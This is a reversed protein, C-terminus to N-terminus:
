MVAREASALREVDEALEPRPLTRLACDSAEYLTMAAGEREAGAAINPPLGARAPELYHDILFLQSPSLEEPGIAQEQTRATSWLRFALENDGNMAAVSASGYLGLIVLSKTYIMHVPHGTLLELELSLHSAAVERDEEQLAVLALICNACAVMGSNKASDGALYEHIVSKARVLDGANIACEAITFSNLDVARPGNHRIFLMKSQEALAQARSWNGKRAELDAEVRLLWARQHDSCDPYAGRIEELRYRAEEVDRYIAGQASQVAALFAGRTDGAEELLEHAQELLPAAAPDGDGSHAFTALAFVIRARDPIPVIGTQDLARTLLARGEDVAGTLYWALGSSAALQQAVRTEGRAFAWRLAARINPLETRYWAWPEWEPTGEGELAAWAEKCRAIFCDAHRRSLADDEGSSGCLEEAYEHITELLWYRPGIESERRMLLSKDLLSELTDPGAGCIAEADEYVCGGVFVSLRRLLRQEDATLLDYSWDITARLTQQRHPADRPGKALFPLRENLRKLIQQPTFVNTRAAALEVALPLCDLRRCLEAVVHEDADQGAREDFLAVADPETMPPVRYEREAAVHLPERSTVLLRLGASQTLLGATEVGAELVQEFNDLVVLMRANGLYALDGGIVEAIALPVLAEERLSQLPVWWVGGDFEKLLQSAAEIALRTKGSGGPGTLTVLRRSGDRVQEVLKALEQERGIFPTPQLPLNSRSRVAERPAALGPDHALIMRELERLEPGPELGLEDALMRRTAQYQALAEAQRGSRYLALILQGRLRERLPHEVVLAELEGVMGAHRGLLLEADIREEHCALRLEDLRGAEAQAFAEFRLDAFAPGRWLSLAKSLARIAASPNGGRLSERGEHFLAEFREADVVGPPLELRYGAPMTEIVDRGLQDRLRSVYVQVTNRAGKPPREGWLADIALDRDIGSRRILLLALLARQKQAGLRIENGNRRVELPGLVGLELLTSVVKSRTVGALGHSM